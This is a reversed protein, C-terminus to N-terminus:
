ETPQPLNMTAKLDRYAQEKPPLTASQSLVYAQLGQKSGSTRLYGAASMRAITCSLTSAGLQGAVSKHYTKLHDRVEPMTFPPPLAGMAKEIAKRFSGAPVARKKRPERRPAPDPDDEDDVQAPKPPDQHATTSLLSLHRSIVDVANLSEQHHSEVKSKMDMLEDHSIM